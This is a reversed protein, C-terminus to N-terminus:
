ANGGLVPFPENLCFDLGTGTNPPPNAKSPPEQCKPHPPEIPRTNLMYFSLKHPTQTCRNMKKLKSCPIRPNKHLPLKSPPHFSHSLNQPPCPCAPVPAQPKEGALLTKIVDSSGWVKWCLIFGAIFCRWAAITGWKGELCCMGGEPM